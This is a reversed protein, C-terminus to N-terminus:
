CDSAHIEFKTQSPEAKKVLVDGCYNRELLDKMYRTSTKSRFGIIVERLANGQFPAFYMGSKPTCSNLALVFRVEQEYQWEMAKTGFNSRMLDETFQPSDLNYIFEAREHSYSIDLPNKFTFGDSNFGLSIGAGCESYLGWLLPSTYTKSFCLLGYNAANQSIVHNTWSEPTHEPEYEPPHLLKPACDFVDNLENLLSVKLMKGEIVRHANSDSLFKYILYGM